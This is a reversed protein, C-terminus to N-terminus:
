AEELWLEGGNEDFLSRDRRTLVLRFAGCDLVAHYDTILDITASLSGRGSVVMVREGGCCLDLDVRNQPLFSTYCVAVLLVM